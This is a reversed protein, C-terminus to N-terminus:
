LLEKAESQYGPSPAPTPSSSQNEKPPTWTVKTAGPIKDMAYNLYEVFASRNEHEVEYSLMEELVEHVTYNGDGRKRALENITPHLDRNVMRASKLADIYKQLVAVKKDIGAKPQGYVLDGSMIARRIADEVAQPLGEPVAATPDTPTLRFDGIGFFARQGYNLSITAGSLSDTRAKKDATKVPAKNTKKSSKRRTKKEAKPQEQENSM